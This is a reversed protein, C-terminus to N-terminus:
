ISYKSMYPFCKCPRMMVSLFLPLLLIVSCRAIKWLSLCLEYTLLCVFDTLLRPFSPFGCHSQSPLQYKWLFPPNFASKSGHSLSLGSIKYQFAQVLGSLNSTMHIRTLSIMKNSNRRNQSQIKSSNRCHLIKKKKMKNYIMVIYIQVINNKADNYIQCYM